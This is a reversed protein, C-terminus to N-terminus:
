SKDGADALEDGFPWLREFELGTQPYRGELLRLHHGALLPVPLERALAVAETAPAFGWLAPQGVGKGQAVVKFDGLGGPRALDLM